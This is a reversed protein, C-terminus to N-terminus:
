ELLLTFDFDPAGWPAAKFRARLDTSLDMRWRDCFIPTLDRGAAHSACALWSLCQRRAAAKDTPKIGPCKALAAFFKQVWADGGYDRRLKLMATAYMVPQDSTRIMKGSADKMRNTKEDYGDLITFTRLFPESSRAYVEEMQEIHTRTPLDADHCKVADMCVYRMFVAYGTIFCSHRDKFTYFNRGLEYFGYHPFNLPDRQWDAVNQDYFMALEVGTVGIYGCGAGCTLGGAPVATVTPKGNLNKFRGPKAGTLKAYTEWGQDLCGVFHTVMLPDLEADTTLFTINRGEWPVLQPKLKAREWAKLDFVISSADVAAGPQLVVAPASHAAVRWASSLFFLFLIPTRM